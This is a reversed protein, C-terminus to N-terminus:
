NRVHLHGTVYLIVLIFLIIGVPSVGAWGYRSYGWGGGGLALVLLVILIIMLMPDEWLRWWPAAFPDDPPRRRSRRRTPNLWQGRARESNQLPAKAAAM